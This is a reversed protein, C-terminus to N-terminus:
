ALYGSLSSAVLVRANTPVATGATTQTYPLTGGGITLSPDVLFIRATKRGTQLVRNVPMAIQNAVNPAWDNTSPIRKNRVCSRVYADGITKLDAIERNIYGQDVRRIVTATVALALIAIIAIVGLFEIMTLGAAQTKYGQLRAVKYDQFKDIATRM